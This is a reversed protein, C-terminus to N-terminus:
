LTMDPIGVCVVNFKSFNAAIQEYSSIPIGDMSDPHQGDVWIGALPISSRDLISKVNHAVNGAGWMVVPLNERKLQEIASPKTSDNLRLLSKLTTM